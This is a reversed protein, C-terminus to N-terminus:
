KVKKKEKKKLYMCAKAKVNNLKPEDDKRDRKCMQM